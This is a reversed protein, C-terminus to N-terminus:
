HITMGGDVIHEQGTIYSAEDSALFVVIGTLESTESIRGLPIEDLANRGEKSANEDTAEIMMPTILTTGAPIAIPRQAIHKKPNRHSTIVSSFRM